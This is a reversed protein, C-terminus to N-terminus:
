PTATKQYIATSVPVLGPVLRRLTEAHGTLLFGGPRLRRAVAAAVALQDAAGFYILVNRLFVIDAEFAPATDLALLNLHLLRCRERLEPVIRYRIQKAGPATTRSRMLYRQRLMEPIGDIEEPSFVASRARNLVRASIDSGIGQWRLGGDEARSQAHIVMAASWLEAGTSCAASWVVMERERGAGAAILRPLGEAELWDYHRRERFFSTTHTALAEALHQREGAGDEAMLIRLYSPFDPCGLASLRPSLRGRLFDLRGPNLAVGSVDRAIDMISRAM